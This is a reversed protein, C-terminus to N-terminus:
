LVPFQSLGTFKCELPLYTRQRGITNYRAPWFNINRSLYFYIKWRAPMIWSHFWYVPFDVLCIRFIGRNFQFQFQFVLPPASSEDFKRIQIMWCFSVDCGTLNAGLLWGREWPREEEWGLSLSLSGPHVQDRSLVRCVEGWDPYVREIIKNALTSWLNELPHSKLCAFHSLNPATEHRRCFDYILYLRPFKLRDIFCLNIM